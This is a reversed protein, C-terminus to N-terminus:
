LIEMDKHDILYKLNQFGNAGGLIMEKNKWQVLLCDPLDGWYYGDGQYDIIQLIGDFCYFKIIHSKVKKKVFNQKISKYRIGLFAKKIVISNDRIM